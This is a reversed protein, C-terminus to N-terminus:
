LLVCMSPFPLFINCPICLNVSYYRIKLNYYKKCRYNLFKELTKKMATDEAEDGDVLSRIM